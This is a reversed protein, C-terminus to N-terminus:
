THQMIGFKRYRTLLIDSDSSKCAFNGGMKVAPESTEYEMKGSDADIVVITILPNKWTEQSFNYVLFRGHNVLFIPRIWPNMTTKTPPLKCKWAIKNQRVSYLYGDQDVCFIEDINAGTYVRILRGIGDIRLNRLSRTKADLTIVLGPKESPFLISGDSDTVAHIIDGKQPLAIFEDKKPNWIQWPDRNGQVLLEDTEPCFFANLAHLKDTHNIVRHNSTDIVVLDTRPKGSIQKTPSLLVANRTTDRYDLITYSEFGSLSLSQKESIHFLSSGKQSELSAYEKSSILQRIV